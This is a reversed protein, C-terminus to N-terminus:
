SEASLPARCVVQSSSIKTHKIGFGLKALPDLEMVEKLSHPMDEEAIEQQLLPTFDKLVVIDNDMFTVNFGLSLVFEIWEYKSRQMRDFTKSRFTLPQSTKDFQEGADSGQAHVTGRSLSSWVDSDYACLVRSLKSAQIFIDPLACHGKSSFDQLIQDDLAVLCLNCLGVHQMSTRLNHAFLGYGISSFTLVVTNQKAIPLLLSKVAARLQESHSGEHAHQVM